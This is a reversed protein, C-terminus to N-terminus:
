PNTELRVRYYRRRTAKKTAVWLGDSDTGSIVPQWTIMDDSAELVQTQTPTKPISLYFRDNKLSVAIPAKRKPTAQPLKRDCEALTVKVEQHCPDCPVGDRLCHTRLTFTYDQGPKIGNLTTTITGSQNSALPSALQIIHPSFVKAPHLTIWHVSCDLQNTVKATVAHKVVPATAICSAHIDEVKVCQSFAANALLVWCLAGVAPFPRRSCNTSPSKM